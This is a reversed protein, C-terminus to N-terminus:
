EFTQDNAYRAQLPVDGHEISRPAAPASIRSPNLLRRRQRFCASIDTHSAIFKMMGIPNTEVM